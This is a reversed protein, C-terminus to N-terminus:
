PRHASAHISQILAYEQGIRDEGIQLKIFVDARDTMQWAIGGAGPPDGQPACRLPIDTTLQSIVYAIIETEFPERQHIRRLDRKGDALSRENFRWDDRELLELLRKRASEPNLDVEDAM